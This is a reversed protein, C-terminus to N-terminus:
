EKCPQASLEFKLVGGATIEGYTLYLRNLEKGNLYLKEIYPYQLPDRDCVISFERSVTCSHYKPDLAIKASQFLPTNVIFIDNSPCIQAFGLASLVYWASLQGVDENGCFGFAGLRYAEKQVRRTWYQTRHALGLYNFYHTINHCPENSHNYDENWLATLDASEFLRELLAVMRESGFLEELGNIDYPVFWSQQFINSEVCGTVDYEDKIPIFSGDPNRPGMFGTEANFNEKYRKVRNLFYEANEAYGLAKAFQAMSYDALLFELTESLSGPVFAEELYEQSRPRLSEFPKGDLMEKSQSSALAYKYAKQADFNRIGKVYADAIVILGPDGVMCKSDIGMLEWKPFSSNKEEAIQLLSNVEDNVVDPRLITLLPFESRYVDWGSFMTRQTYNVKQINGAASRFRGDVDAIIRPDLLTHYLCTYFLTKDTEDSGNIEV